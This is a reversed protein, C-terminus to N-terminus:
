AVTCRPLARWSMAAKWAEMARPFAGQVPAGAGPGRPGLQSGTALRTADLEVPLLLLQLPPLPMATLPFAAM